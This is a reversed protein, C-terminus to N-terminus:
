FDFFGELSSRPQTLHFKCDFFVTLNFGCGFFGKWIPLNIRRCEAYIYEWQRLWVEVNPMNKLPKKIAEM